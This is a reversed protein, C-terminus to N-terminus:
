FFLDFNFIFLNTYLTSGIRITFGLTEFSSLFLFYFFSLFLFYFFGLSNIYSLYDHSLILHAFFGILHSSCYCICLLAYFHMILRLFLYTM